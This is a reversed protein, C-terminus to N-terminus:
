SLKKNKLSISLDLQLLAKKLNINIEHLCFISFINLKQCQTFMCKWYYIQFLREM